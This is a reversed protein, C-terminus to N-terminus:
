IGYAIFVTVSAIFTEFVHLNGVSAWDGSNMYKLYCRAMDQAYNESSIREDSVIMIEEIDDVNSQLDPFRKVDKNIFDRIMQESVGGSTIENGSMGIITANGPNVVVALAVQKGALRRSPAEPAKVTKSSSPSTEEHAKGSKGFLSSLWEFM